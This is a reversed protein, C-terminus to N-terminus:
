DKLTKTPKDALTCICRDIEIWYPLALQHDTPTESLRNGVEWLLQLDPQYCFDLLFHLHTYSIITVNKAIAQAYIQSKNTPFQLLPAVLLAYNNSQRWTDLAEIKFDKQNKATRSLRFTKADGVIKYNKTKGFVDAANGRASIVEAEIGLENLTRSLLIDSLKAWLKEESSDHDFIEPLIGFSVLNERLEENSFTAVKSELKDFADKEKSIDFIYNILNNRM